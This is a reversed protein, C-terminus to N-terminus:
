TAERQNSALLSSSPAGLDVQSYFDNGLEDSKWYADWEDEEEALPGNEATDAGESTVNAEDAPHALEDLAIDSAAALDSSLDAPPSVSVTTAPPPAKRAPSSRELTTVGGGEDPLAVIGGSTIIYDVSGPPAVSNFIVTLRRLRIPQEGDQGAVAVRSAGVDADDERRLRKVLHAEHGDLCRMRRTRSLMIRANVQNAWVLGLAAEKADEGPVTDARGFLRAQERYAVEHARADPAPGRDIVDTVENVVLVAVRHASALGHLLTAVEALHRARETLTATSVQVDSHLLEALADIVVLKVPKADPKARVDALFSPLTVSLVHRLVPITPAKLTHVDSLGCLTPSFLPHADVM